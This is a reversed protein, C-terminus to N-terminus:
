DIAFKSYADERMDLDNYGGNVFYTIKKVSSNMEVLDTGNNGEEDTHNKWYWAAAEWAYDSAIVDAGEQMIRADGRGEQELYDSFAQYNARGTLHIYGAGRFRYGDGEECNGLDKRNGYKNNFYVEDEAKTSNHYGKSWNIETLDLGKYSEVVCQSIIHRIEKLSTIGFKHCIINLEKISEDTMVVFGVSELMSRTVYEELYNIQGSKQATIIGGRQCFLMSMMNIQERGNIQQYSQDLGGIPLIRSDRNENFSETAFDYEIPLNEWESNLLMCCHCIGKGQEIAKIMEDKIRDTSWADNQYPVSKHIEKALAELEAGDPINKCNGFSVINLSNEDKISIHNQAKDKIGGKADTVVAPIFYSINAERNEVIRLTSMEAVQEEDVQSNITGSESNLYHESNDQMTCVLPAGEVIYMDPDHVLNNMYWTYTAGMTKSDVNYYDMIIEAQDDMAFGFKKFYSIDDEDMYEYGPINEVNFEKSM